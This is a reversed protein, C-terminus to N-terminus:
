STALLLELIGSVLYSVFLALGTSSFAAGTTRRSRIQNVCCCAHVIVSTHIIGFYLTSETDGFEADGIYM